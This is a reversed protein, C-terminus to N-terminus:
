EAVGPTMKKDKGLSKSEFGADYHASEVCYKYHGGCGMMGMIWAVLSLCCACKVAMGVFTMKRNEIHM